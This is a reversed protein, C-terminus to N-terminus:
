SRSLETNRFGHSVTLTRDSLKAQRRPGPLSNSLSFDGGPFAAKELVIKQFRESGFKASLAAPEPKREVLERAAGADGLRVEREDLGAADGVRRAVFLEAAELLSEAERRAFQDRLRVQLARRPVHPRHQRLQQRLPLPFVLISSRPHRISVAARRWGGDEM